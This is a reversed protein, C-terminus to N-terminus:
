VYTRVQKQQIPGFQLQLGKLAPISVYFIRLVTVHVRCKYNM